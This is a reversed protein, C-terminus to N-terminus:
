EILKKGGNELEENDQATISLSKELQEIRKDAVYLMQKIQWCVAAGLAFVTAAGIHPPMIMIAFFMFAVVLLAAGGSRTINAPLLKSDDDSQIMKYLKMKAIEEM